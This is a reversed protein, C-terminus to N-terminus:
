KGFREDWQWDFKIIFDSDFDKEYRKFETSYTQVHIQQEELDFKLLRLWGDGGYASDSIQLFKFLTNRGEYDSLLEYVKYGDNNIDTRAAEGHEKNYSHGCLVLFIQNNKSIFKEWIEVASNCDGSDSRYRNNTQIPHVGPNNSDYGRYLYEHTIVITPINKNQDIVNQAWELVMDGAELELGIFLFEIGGASFRGWSSLGDNFSGKYWEKDKFHKSQNGFYKIYHSTGNFAWSKDERRVREDYDHNGPVMCFPITNDLISITKDALEWEIEQDGHHLVNDGLHIAFAIDGGRSVSNKAIYEIQHRYVDVFDIAFPPTSITQYRYDTYNQSDPIVAITFPSAFLRSFFLINILLLIQSKFRVM